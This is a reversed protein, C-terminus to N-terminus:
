FWWCFSLISISRLRLQKIWDDVLSKTYSVKCAESGIVAGLYRKGELTVKVKSGM